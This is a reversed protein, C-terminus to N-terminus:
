DQKVNIKLINEMHQRHQNSKIVDVHVDVTNKRVSELAQIFRANNIRKTGRFAKDPFNGYFEAKEIAKELLTESSTLENLLKWKLCEQAHIKGSEYCFHQMAFRGFIYETMLGGLTCAV